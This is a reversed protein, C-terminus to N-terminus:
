KMPKRGSGIGPWFLAAPALVSSAALLLLRWSWAAGTQLWGPVRNHEGINERPDPIAARAQEPPGRWSEM